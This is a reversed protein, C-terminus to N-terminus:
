LEFSLALATTGALACGAFVNRLIERSRVIDREEEYKANYRDYDDTNYSANRMELYDDASGQAGGARFHCALSTAACALAAAGFISRAIVTRKRMSEPKIRWAADRQLVRLSDRSSRMLGYQAGLMATYFSETENINATGYLGLSFRSHPVLRLEMQIPVGMEAFHVAERTESLLSKEIVKGDTVGWAAAVGASLSLSMSWWRMQGASKEKMFLTPTWCPGFLAAFDFAYKDPPADFVHPTENIHTMKLTLEHAKFLRSHGASVAIGYPDGTHAYGTALTSWYVHEKKVGAAEEGHLVMSSVCIVLIGVVASERWYKRKMESAGKLPIEKDHSVQPKIHRGRCGTLACDTGIELQQL